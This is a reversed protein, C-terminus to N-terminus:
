ANLLRLGDVDARLDAALQCLDRLAAGIDESQVRLPADVMLGKENVFVTAASTPAVLSLLLGLTLSLAAGMMMATMTMQRMRSHVAGRRGGDSGKNQEDHDCRPRPKQRDRAM